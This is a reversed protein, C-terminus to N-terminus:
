RNIRGVVAGVAIVLVIITWGEWTQPTWGIGVVRGFGHERTM